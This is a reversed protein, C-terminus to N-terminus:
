KRRSAHEFAPTGPKVEDLLYGDKLLAQRLWGPQPGEGDWTEGTLPHQYKISPRSPKPLNWPGELEHLEICWFEVLQQIQHLAIARARRQQREAERSSFEDAPCLSKNIATSDTSSRSTDFSM